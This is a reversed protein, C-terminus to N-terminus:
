SCFAILKFSNTSSTKYRGISCPSSEPEDRECFVHWWVLLQWYPPRKGGASLAM